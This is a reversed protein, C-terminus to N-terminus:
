RPHLMVHQQWMVGTYVQKGKCCLNDHLVINILYSPAAHDLVLVHALATRSVAMNCCESMVGYGGHTQLASCLLTPEEGIDAATFDINSPMSQKIELCLSCSLVVYFAVSRVAALHQCFSIVKAALGKMLTRGQSDKVEATVEYLELLPSWDVRCPM